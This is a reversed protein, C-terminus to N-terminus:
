KLYRSVLRNYTKRHQKTFSHYCTWPKGERSECTKMKDKLILFHAQITYRLDFEFLKEVDLKYHKATNFSIQAIGLDTAVKKKIEIEYCGDDDCHKETTTETHYRHKNNFANEQMLIAVSVMPDIDAIKAEQFIINSLEFAFTKDVYPNLELIKCYIKHTKCDEAKATGYLAQSILIAAIIEVLLRM